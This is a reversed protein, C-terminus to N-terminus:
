GNGFEDTKTPAKTKLRSDLESPTLVKLTVGARVSQIGEMVVQDDEALDGDVLIAGAMRKVLTVERRAAVGAQAVWVYAGDAGWQVAVDPVSLFAGRSAALIIEFAM